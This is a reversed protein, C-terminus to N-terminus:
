AVASRGRFMDTEIDAIEPEQLAVGKLADANWLRKMGQGMMAIPVNESRLKGIMGHVAGISRGLEAAIEDATAKENRRRLLYEVEGQTWLKNSRGAVHGRTRRELPIGNKRLKNVMKLVSATTVNLNTAIGSLPEKAAWLTMLNRLEETTWRHGKYHTTAKM